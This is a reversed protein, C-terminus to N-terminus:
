VGMLIRLTNRTGPGLTVALIVFKIMNSFQTDDELRDIAYLALLIVVFKLPIMIWATGVLNILYTPLIHKEAYGYGTMGVVTSAADFMAATMVCKNIPTFFKPWKKSFVHFFLAFVSTLGLIKAVAIPQVIKFFYFASLVTAISATILMFHWYKLKVKTRKEIFLGIVMALIGIGAFMLYIFPTQLYPICTSVADAYVHWLSGLIVFPSAGWFFNYDIKVKMSKFLYYLGFALVAALLGYAITNVINYGGTASCLPKAFYTTFFAAPNM